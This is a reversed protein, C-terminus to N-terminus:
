FGVGITITSGDAVLIKKVVHNGFDTVYVNGAADVAVGTPLNFGTGISVPAGGGVPIKKVSNTGRDAVYVNGAIDTQLTLQASFGSGVDVTGSSYGPAAVGNSVPTLPAITFGTNYTKAGGYSLTPLPVLNVKLNVTTTNSASINYGTVTYNTAPGGAKPTGNITGTSNNFNLGAPLFPAIFYGGVPAIKKVAGNLDDAVYVNGSGDVAVGFTHNFGSGISITAGGGVPIMKVASNNFDGVFVNGAADVAVGSPASFGSGISVPPAVAL